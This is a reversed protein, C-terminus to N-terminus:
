IEYDDIELTTFNIFDQISSYYSLILDIEIFSSNRYGIYNPYSSYEWNILDTILNHKIPNKHIYRSVRMLYKEDTINKTKPNKQFLSDRRKYKKNFAKAYSNHFNSIQQQIFNDIKLDNKSYKYNKQIQYNFIKDKDNVKILFHYHNPVLCYCLTQSIPTLYENYKKLFFLYNDREKFLLDNDSNARTYIHFIRGCEFNM